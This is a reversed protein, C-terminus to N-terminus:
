ASWSACCLGGDRGALRRPRLFPNRGLCVRLALWVMLPVLYYSALFLHGGLRFFHFPMSAYLVAPALAALRGLRLRRLM